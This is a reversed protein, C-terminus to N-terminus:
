RTASAPSRTGAPAHSGRGARQGARRLREEHRGQPRRLEDARVEQQFVRQAYQRARDRATKAPHGTEGDARRDQRLDKPVFERKWGTARRTARRSRRRTRSPSRRRATSSRTWPPASSLLIQHQVKRPRDQHRRRGRRRRVTEQVRLHAGHAAGRHLGGAPDGKEAELDALAEFFEKSVM